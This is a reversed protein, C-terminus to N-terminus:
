MVNMKDVGCELILKEVINIRNCVNSKIWIFLLYICVIILYKFNKLIFFINLM